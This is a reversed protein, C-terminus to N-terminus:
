SRGEAVASARAICQELYSHFKFDGTVTRVAGEFYRRAAPATLVGVVANTVREFTEDDILGEEHQWFSDDWNIYFGGCISRFQERQINAADTTGTNEAVWVKSAEPSAMALYLTMARSASESFILARTHKVNQRTQQALYLLSV